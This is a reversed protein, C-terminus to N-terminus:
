EGETSPAPTPAGSGPRVTAGEGPSIAVVADRELDVNVVLERVNEAILHERTVRYPRGTAADRGWESRPLAADLRIPRQLAVFVVAGFTREDETAWPVINMLSHERGALARKVIPDRLVIQRAEATQEPTLSAPPPGGQFDPEGAIPASPPGVREDERSGTADLVPIAVAVGAIAALVAGVVLARRQSRKM